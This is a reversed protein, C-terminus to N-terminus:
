KGRLIQNLKKSPNYSQKKTTHYNIGRAKAEIKLEMLEDKSLVKPGGKRTEVILLGRIRRGDMKRFMQKVM